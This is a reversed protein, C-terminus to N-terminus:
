GREGPEDVIALESRDNVARVGQGVGGVSQSVNLGPVHMALYDDGHCSEGGGCSGPTEVQPEGGTEAAAALPAPRYRRLRNANGVVSLSSLAVAAAAIIPSLRIGFIPYLIVAAVPIGIGYAM